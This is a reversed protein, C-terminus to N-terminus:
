LQIRRKEFKFLAHAEALALFVGISGHHSECRDQLLDTPWQAILKRALLRFPIPHLSQKEAVLPNRMIQANEGLREAFLVFSECQFLGLLRPGRVRHEAGEPKCMADRTGCEVRLENRFRTAIPCIDNCLPMALNRLVIVALSQRVLAEEDKIRRHGM